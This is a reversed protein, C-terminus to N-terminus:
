VTSETEETAGVKLRNHEEKLAEGELNFGESGIISPPSILNYQEKALMRVKQRAEELDRKLQFPNLIRAVVALRVKDM